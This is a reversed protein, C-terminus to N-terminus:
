NSKADLVLVWDHWGIPTEFVRSARDTFTGADHSTGTHTDYWTARVAAALPALNITASRVAEPFFVMAYRGHADRTAVLHQAGEGQGATILTDDPIRDFFPRSEMLRRLHQVQNAGPREIAEQWFVRPHNILPRRPDTFAWMSQHGYTVGCAGAFVSRYCQRRIDGDNFYGLAPDWKPWPNVPHDEYNPELDLTPKVPTRAWDEGVWQWVPVDHGGGHGSQMTNVDLWPEDHLHASTTPRGGWTHYTTLTHAGQGADIGEALARWHARYDYNPTGARSRRGEEMVPPRDGGIMWIVNSAQKYRAGIWAGYARLADIREFFIAPGDGWGPTVKDGWTPLLAVYLGRQEARAIVWDVFQWYRENPRQPDMDDFPLGVEPNGVRLGDFESLAVIQTVNFGQRARVTLYHDVESRTLNQFLTWATDGLWFFPAGSETMLYRGNPHVRLRPLLSM